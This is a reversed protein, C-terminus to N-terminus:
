AHKKRGSLSALLHRQRAAEGVLIAALLMLLRELGVVNSGACATTKPLGTL